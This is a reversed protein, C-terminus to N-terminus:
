LRNGHLSTDSDSAALSHKVFSCLITARLKAIESAPHLYISLNSLCDTWHANSFNNAATFRQFAVYTFDDASSSRLRRTSLVGGLQQAACKGRSQHWHDRTGSPAVAIRDSRDAHSVSFM